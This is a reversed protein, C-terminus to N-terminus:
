FGSRLIQIDDPGTEDEDMDGKIRRTSEVSFRAATEKILNVSRIAELSESVQRQLRWQNLILLVNTVISILLVVLLLIVVMREAKVTDTLSQVQVNLTEERTEQPVKFAWSSSALAVIVLFIVLPIVARCDYSQKM